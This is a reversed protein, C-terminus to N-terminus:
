TDEPPDQIKHLSRAANLSSTKFYDAQPTLPFFPLYITMCDVQIFSLKPRM